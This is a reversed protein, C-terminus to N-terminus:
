FLRRSDDEGTDDRDQSDPTGFYNIINSSDRRSKGTHEECEDPITHALFYTSSTEPCYSGALQGTEACVRRKVVDSSIEFSTRPLESHLAKMVEKWIPIAGRGGTIGRGMSRRQDAGVWVGATYRPSFGVFWADSNDNTTGTKGAVPRPVDSRGLSAATGEHVVKELMKIMLSAVGDSLVEEEVPEQRYITKGRNDVISDIFYPDRRKGLNPFVSYAQTLDINSVNGVGIALAPVAPLHGEIGMSRALPIVRHTGVSQLLEIAVLNLSKKLAYELSVEGHFRRDFNVPRWKGQDTDVTIPKDIMITAPTYGNQFAAAYVFPKFASGPQRGGQVARNYSSESFDRGGILVRVAGTSNDLSVVSTQLKRLKLSDHLAEFTERHEAYLSDFNDFLEDRSVDILEWARNDNIFLRNPIRQLTDLHRSVAKEAAKQAHSCMTTYISIGQHYLRDEGLMRIVRRRIEEVFYPGYGAAREAPNASVETDRYTGFEESSIYDNRMMSALVTNRRAAARQRNKEKDPRFAEPRQICGALLASEGLTLESASKSYYQQSAAEMGYVGAGMYVMNLYLELIEDKTYYREIDIAALSERIKRIIRKDHSFFANRALQQTITSAGQAYRGSTINQLAAGAIRRIDIGWHTYFRADEIAIVAERLHTPFSDLPMWFRREISFEHILDGNKDYV